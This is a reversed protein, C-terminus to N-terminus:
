EKPKTVFDWGVKVPHYESRLGDNGEAWVYIYENEQISARNGPTVRATWCQSEKNYGLGHQGMWGFGSEFFMVRSIKEPPLDIKVRLEAGAQLTVHAMMNAETVSPGAGKRYRPPPTSVLSQRYVVQRDAKRQAPLVNDTAAEEPYLLFPGMFGNPTVGKIFLEIRNEEGWKVIDTVDVFASSSPRDLMLSTIREGNIAVDVGTQSLFPIILWLREPRECIFNHYSYSQNRKSEPKQWEAIKGGMEAFNKPKARELLVAVDKNLKFTTTLKLDRQRAHYPFDFLKGHAQTWGDLERVYTEGAFQLDVCIEKASESFKQKIGNVAVSKVAGPSSLRVRVPVLQGPKGSVGAIELRDGRQNVTGEAGILVPLDQKAAKKLEFLFCSNAPVTIRATEGMAFDSKGDKDLVRKGKESPYLETFQYDGKEQLNIEDGVEFAIESSRPNGNFLFIFGHDGKIRAYGDVAGPQVQEGFPETSNVYAFNDKAWRLWKKYFEVYGPVLNTEYPLITPMVSGAVALSSMFGYKWGHYDWAKTLEPDFGGESIRHVLAHGTVAPTFRFRMSWCNQFRLGDANQRDDSIQNHQTSVIITQENYVEHQDVHKLGWLGFNKTGYFGQIFLDKKEAKLRGMLEICRRWGKYGGKDAIHGHSEDHCNMGSGLSPDWSWNSLNYKQITNNQVTFWWEYFDDCAVCNDPARRGAADSKKWEPKDPRFNLGAANGEGGHAACGMYFGYSIGKGTAYDAVQRATHKPDAPVVDWFLKNADPKGYPHLPKFIIMDGGVESFTDITKTFYDKDKETRPMQPLPHFFQYNINLFKKQVPSLYDLAYARMARSENRDLPKYGSGNSNYRFSRGSDEVMVGSKRYVGMFQPESTYGEGPKLILGPEFSLAVGKEDLDAKFFPNEIGTFLGGKDHRVFEVAPAAIFTVYHVVESAPRSFATKGLILNKVRLPTKNAIRLERRFFGNNDKMTYILDAGVKGTERKGLLGFEYHYVVRNKDATVSTPRTKGNSFVGLDTDLEFEDSSFPYTESALPNEVSELKGADSVTIRIKENSLSRPSAADVQASALARFASACTMSTEAKCISLCAVLAACALVRQTMVRKIANDEM